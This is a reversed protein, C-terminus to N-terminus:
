SVFESPWSLQLNQVCGVIGGRFSVDSGASVGFDPIRRLWEEIAIRLEVRALNAGPCRHPGNGFTSHRLTAREFDVTLPDPNEREDMGHLATPLVVMDGRKMEVGLFSVDNRVLRAVTVVPYRRFLEEVARPILAPREALLRRQAPEQALFLFAFSLFNVVTDLGAILVQTSLDLAEKKSMPAQGDRSASMRSVFDTGPSAMRQEIFPEMYDLLAHIAAEFTMQGDPRTLQDAWFKVRPADDIPLDMMRMFIHIPLIEAFERTFDCQGRTQFQEILSGALSRITEEMGVVAKPALSENLAVRYRGHEPPDVTTPLLQHQEGIWKPVLIIRSSFREYDGYAAHIDKGRTLIWHGGNRATWVIEPSTDQLLKWASHFDRGVDPPAYIDFDVVRDLPVHPPVPEPTIADIATM